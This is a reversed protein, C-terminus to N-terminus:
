NVGRPLRVGNVILCSSSICVSQNVLIPVGGSPYVTNLDLKAPLDVQELQTGDARKIFAANRICLHLLQALFTDLEHNIM